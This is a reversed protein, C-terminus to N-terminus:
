SSDHLALSMCLSYPNDTYHAFPRCRVFGACTYLAHAPAFADGTGTELSVRRYGRRRAEGVLHELLRRGVHQGRQDQRTHMSKIEGHTPDLEKLAGIAVLDGEMRVTFFTVDPEVLGELDLAHVHEAPSQAHAFVLHRALLEVVDRTRPDEATILLDM